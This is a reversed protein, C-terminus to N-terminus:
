INHLWIIETYIRQTDKDRSADAGCRSGNCEGCYCRLVWVIVGISNASYRRRNSGCLRTVIAAALMSWGRLRADPDSRPSASSGCWSVSPASDARYERHEPAAHTSSSGPESHCGRPAEGWLEPECSSSPAGAPEPPAESAAATVREEAPEPPSTQAAIQRTSSIEAIQTVSTLSEERIQPASTDEPREDTIQPTSTVNVATMQATSVNTIETMQPDSTIEPAGAEETMQSSSVNTVETPASAEETTQSADTVVTTQATSTVETTQPASTVETTQSVSTIQATTLNTRSTNEPSDEEASRLTPAVATAENMMFGRPAGDPATSSVEDAEEM